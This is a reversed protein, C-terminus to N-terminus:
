RNQSEPEDSFLARGGTKPNPNCRSGTLTRGRKTSLSFKM